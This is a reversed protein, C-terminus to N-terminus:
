HQAWALNADAARQCWEFAGAFDGASYYRFSLNAQAYVHGQDAAMREWRAAHADDQAVGKGEDYMTSLIYQSEAHGQGAAVRFGEAAEAFRGANYDAVARQYDPNSSSNSADRRGRAFISSRGSYLSLTGSTPIHQLGVQAKNEM